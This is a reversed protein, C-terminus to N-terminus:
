QKVPLRRYVVRRGNVGFVQLREDDLRIVFLSYRAGDPQRDTEVTLWCGNVRWSGTSPERDDHERASSVGAGGAVSLDFADLRDRGSALAWRGVLAAPAVHCAASLLEDLRWLRAQYTGSICDGDTCHDRTNKLWDRQSEAVSPDIAQVLRYVDALHRDTEVLGPDACILREVRSSAKSCDIGAASATGSALLLAALIPRKM